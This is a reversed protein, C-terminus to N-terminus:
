QNREYIRVENKARRKMFHKLLTAQKLLANKSMVVGFDLAQLVRSFGEVEMTDYIM